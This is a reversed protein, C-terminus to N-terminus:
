HHEVGGRYGVVKFRGIMEGISFFGLVEAAVVGATAMEQTSMNRIRALINRPAAPSSEATRAFMSRPHRIARVLPQSYTQFAALSRRSRLKWILPGSDRSRSTNSAQLYCLRSVAPEDETRQVSDKLSRSWSKLLLHNSTNISCQDNADTKPSTTASM